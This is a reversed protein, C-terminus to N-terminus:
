WSFSHVKRFQNKLITVLEQIQPYSGGQVFNYKKYLLLLATCKFILEYLFRNVSRIKYIIGGPFIQGGKLLSQVKGRCLRAGTLRILPWM